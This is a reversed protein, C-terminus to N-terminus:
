RLNMYERCEDRWGQLNEELRKYYLAVKGEDKIRRLEDIELGKKSDKALASQIEEYVQRDMSESSPFQRVLEDEEVAGDCLRVALKYQRMSEKGPTMLFAKLFCESAKKFCFMRCYAVGMNHYLKSAVSDEKAEPEKLLRNYEQLAKYYRKGQVLDDAKRQMREFPTMNKMKKLNQIYASYESESLYGISNLVAAALEEVGEKNRIIEELRMSLLPMNLEQQIWVALEQNLVSDDLLHGYNWFYFCLEEITYINKGVSEMYYPVNATKEQCLILRGM